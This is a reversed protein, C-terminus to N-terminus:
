KIYELLCIEEKPIIELSLRKLLNKGFLEIFMENPTKKDYREKLISNINSSIFNLDEQTYRELSVRKPIVRRVLRHINEVNPKQYPSGSDCYFIKCRKGNYISQSIEESKLFEGGRDTLMIGLLKKFTNQGMKNEIEDLARIVSISRKDELKLLILFQIKPIFM